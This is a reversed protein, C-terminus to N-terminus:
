NNDTNITSQDTYGGDSTIDSPCQDDRRIRRSHYLCVYEHVNVPTFVERAAETVASDFGPRYWPPNDDDFRPHHFKNSRYMCQLVHRQLSAINAFTMRGYRMKIGNCPIVVRDGSVTDVVMKDGRIIDRIMMINYFSYGNLKDRFIIAKGRTAEINHDLFDDGWIAKLENISPMITHYTIFLGATVSSAFHILSSHPIMRGYIPVTM